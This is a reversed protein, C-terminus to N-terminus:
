VPRARRIRREKLRRRVASWVRRALRSRRAVTRLRNKAQRFAMPVPKPPTTLTIYTTPSTAKLTDPQLTRSAVALYAFQQLLGPRRRSPPAGAVCEALADRVAAPRVMDTLPGCTTDLLDCVTPVGDGDWIATATSPGTRTGSIFPVESWLPQFRDLLGRHLAWQRKQAADLAFSASVFAPTLFPTVIGYLYASTYWRRVREVLYLYDTMAQGRLGLGEAHDLVAGIRDREAAVAEGVMANVPVAANLRGVATKRAAQSDLDGGGDKPYWYAVALEGGAGSITPPSNAPLKRPVARRVLYTSPFQYDYLNQLREAREYLDTRLVDDPAGVRALRHVPGPGRRDRVIRMLHQATEGEAAADVNTVIEIPKDAALFAAAMVRSDKGGSLGLTIQGPYLDGIGAATALMGEAALDIAADFGKAQAALGDAVLDDASHRLQSTLRWGGGPRRRGTVREGPRLLRVGRIPSSDGGFHGCAAYSRWGDVDPERTGWLFAALLSPRSCFATIGRGSGTFLRSMGLWDQQISVRVGDEVAILSFPPVVGAHVDAGALLKRALAAPGGATDLGVPLGLSVATVQHDQAVIPWRYGGGDPAHLVRVGWDGDGIQRRVYADPVLPAAATTFRELAGEVVDAPDPRDSFWALVGYM